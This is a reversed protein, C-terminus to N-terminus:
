IRRRSIEQCLVQDMIVQHRIPLIVVPLDISQRYAQVTHPLSIATTPAQFAVIAQVEQISQLHRTLHFEPHHYHHHIHITHPCKFIFGFCLKECCKHILLSDFRNLRQENM